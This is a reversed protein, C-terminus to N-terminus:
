QPSHSSHSHHQTNGSTKRAGKQCRQVLWQNNDIFSTIWRELFSSKSPKKMHHYGYICVVAAGIADVVLDLMTDTLGSPDGLMPKQLNMDLLHDLAFEAIEWIAGAGLAFMFAFCAIFGAKVRPKTEGAENFMAMLLFGVIGILFGTAAHLLTDWWWFRAYYDRVEGLFLAAFVIAIALLQFQPPTYFRLQRAFVHPIFTIGIIGLTFFATSWQQAILAAAVQTALIAQLGYSLRRHISATTM